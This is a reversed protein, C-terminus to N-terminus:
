EVSVRAANNRKIVLPRRGDTAGFELHCDLLVGLSADKPVDIKAVITDGEREVELAEYPGIQVWSPV